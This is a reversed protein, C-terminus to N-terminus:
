SCNKRSPVSVESCHSFVISVLVAVVAALVVSLRLKRVRLIQLRICDKFDFVRCSVVVFHFRSERVILTFFRLLQDVGLVVATRLFEEDIELLL